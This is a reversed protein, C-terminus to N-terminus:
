LQACAPASASLVVGCFLGTVPTGLKKMWGQRTPSAMAPKSHSSSRYRGMQIPWVPEGTPSYMGASIRGPGSSMSGGCLLQSFFFFLGYGNCVSSSRRGPETM